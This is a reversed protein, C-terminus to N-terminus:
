GPQKGEPEHEAHSRIEMIIKQVADPSLSIASGVIKRSYLDTVLALYVWGNNMRIYSIDGSWVKNPEPPTFRRKLLDPSAPSAEKMGRYRHKGPQNSVLGCEQMLRRSLWRGTTYGSQSM